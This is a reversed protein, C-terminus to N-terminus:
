WCTTSLEGKSTGGRDKKAVQWICAVNRFGELRELPENYRAHFGPKDTPNTFKQKKCINLM